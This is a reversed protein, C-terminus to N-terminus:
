VRLTIFHYYFLWCYDNKRHFIYTKKLQIEPSSVIVSLASTRLPESFNAPGSRNHKLGLTGCANKHRIWSNVSTKIYRMCKVVYAPM